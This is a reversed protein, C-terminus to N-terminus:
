KSETLKLIKEYLEEEDGDSYGVHTYVIKGNGDVLFTM